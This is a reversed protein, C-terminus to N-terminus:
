DNEIEEDAESDNKSESQKQTVNGNADMAVEMRHDDKGLMFEYVMGKSTESMEAEEMEYSSFKSKLTKQVAQPLNNKDIEHETEKWEGDRTYNASYEMGNMKFEAEWEDSSEKGWEVQKVDPFKQSFAEKVAKPVKGKANAGCAIATTVMFALVLGLILKKM